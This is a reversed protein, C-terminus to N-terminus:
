LSDGLLKSRVSNPLASWDDVSLTDLDLSDASDGSDGQGGTTSPPAKRAKDVKGAKSAAQSKRAMDAKKTTAPAEAPASTSELGHIKSVAEAAKQTAEARTYGQQFYMGQMAVAEASLTEDYSDSNENLAPYDSYIKELSQEFTLQDRVDSAIKNPDVQASETTQTNQRLASFVESQLKSAKETDGELLATNAAAMREQLQEDTLTNAERTARERDTEAQQLKGRLEALERESARLQATRQDFRSKPIFPEKAKSKEEPEPEEAPPEGEVDASDDADEESAQEDAPADADGEPEEGDAPEAEDAPADEENKTDSEGGETPTESPELEDGLDLDGLSSIPDEENYLGSYDFENTEADRNDKAM